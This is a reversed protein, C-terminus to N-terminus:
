TLSGLLVVQELVPPPCTTSMRSPHEMGPHPLAAIIDQGLGSACATALRAGDGNGRSAAAERAAASSGWPTWTNRGKNRIEGAEADAPSQRKM